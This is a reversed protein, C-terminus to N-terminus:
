TLNSPDNGWFIDPHVYVFISVVVSFLPDYFISSVLGFSICGTKAPFPVWLDVYIQM